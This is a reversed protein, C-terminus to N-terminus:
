ICICSCTILVLFFSCRKVKCGILLSVTTALVAEPATAVSLLAAGDVAAKFIFPVGVNIIKAGILLGLSLMVRKRIMEDEKPWVYGMMAKLIQSGSVDAGGLAGGGISESTDTSLSGPHFCHRM